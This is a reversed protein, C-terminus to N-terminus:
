GPGAPCDYEFGTRHEPETVLDVPTLIHVWAKGELNEGPNEWRQWYTTVTDTGPTDFKLTFSKTTAEDSFEWRYTLTDPKNM